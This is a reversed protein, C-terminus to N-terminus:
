TDTNTERSQHLLCASKVSIYAKVYESSLFGFILTEVPNIGESAQLPSDTGYMELLKKRTAESMRKSITSM